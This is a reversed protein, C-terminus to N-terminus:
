IGMISTYAASPVKASGWANAWPRAVSSIVISCTGFMGINLFFV